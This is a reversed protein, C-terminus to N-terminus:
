ELGSYALLSSSRSQFLHTARQSASSQCPGPLPVPYVASAHLPQQVDSSTYRGRDWASSRDEAESFGVAGVCCADAPLFDGLTVFTVITRYSSRCPCAVAVSHGAVRQFSVSVVFTCQSIWNLDIPIQRKRPPKRKLSPGLHPPLSLPLSQAHRPINLASEKEYHEM